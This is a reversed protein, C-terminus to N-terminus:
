PQPICGSMKIPPVWADKVVLRGRSCIPCWQWHIQRLCMNRSLHTPFNVGLYYPQKHCKSANPEDSQHPGLFLGDLIGDMAHFWDQMPLKPYNQTTKFSKLILGTITPTFSNVSPLAQHHFTGREAKGGDLGHSKGSSRALTRMVRYRGNAALQSPQQFPKKESLYFSFWPFGM